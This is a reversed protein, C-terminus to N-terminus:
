EISKAAQQKPALLDDESCRDPNCKGREKTLNLVYKSGYNHLSRFRGNWMHVWLLVEMVGELQLRSAQIGVTSSRRNRRNLEIDDASEIQASALLVDIQLLVSCAHTGM